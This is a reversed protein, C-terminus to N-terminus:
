NKSVIKIKGTQMRFKTCYFLILPFLVIVFLSGPSIRNYSFIVFFSIFLQLLAYGFSVNTHLIKQENCLIQYYHMRHAQFINQKLCLRHIITMVTDVGYVSLFLLWVLTNTQIILELLLYIIWFAITISGIDGAFCKAKKRCNFFLFVVSAIVPLILLDKDTFPNIYTNVYLLTVMVVITYLGTIGNIGDMFNYANIIGVSLVYSLGVGWWPVMGYVELDYFLLSVAMLQIGFRLRNPLSKIDDYFSVFGVMTIATFFLYNSHTHLVFYFLAAFWYVIGGGRLTIETHSSRENPKDIINYKDAIKFYGLICSILFAAAIM